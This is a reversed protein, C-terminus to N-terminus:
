AILANNSLSVNLTPITAIPTPGVFFSTMFRVSKDSGFIFEFFDSFVDCLNKSVDSNIESSCTVCTICSNFSSPALTITAVSANPTSSGEFSFNTIFMADFNSKGDVADCSIEPIYPNSILVRVAATM